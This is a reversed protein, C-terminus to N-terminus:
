KLYVPTVTAGFAAVRDSLVTVNIAMEKVPSTATVIADTTMAAGTVDFSYSSSGGLQMHYRVHTTETYLDSLYLEEADSGSSYFGVTYAQDLSSPIEFWPSTYTYWRGIDPDPIIGEDIAGGYIYVGDSIRRLSVKISNTNAEPKYFVASIRALCGPVYNTRQVVTVGAQGASAGRMFRLVRNGKYVRNPDVIIAVTAEANGWKVNEDAWDAFTDGWMGPPMTSPTTYWTLKTKDIATNFPDMRAWMADSRMAGTDRFDCVVKSFDSTTVFRSYLTGRRKAIDSPVVKSEAVWVSGGDVNSVTYRVAVASVGSGPVTYTGKLETFTVGDTNKYVDTLSTITAPVGATTSPVATLAASGTAVGASNYTVLDLTIKGARRVVVDDFYYTDGSTVASTIQVFPAISVTNTPATLYGSIKTWVGKRSADATISTVVNTLFGGGSNFGTLGIQIANAGGTTQTNGGVGSKGYVYGEVYWVDGAVSPIFTTTTTADPAIYSYRATGNSVLRLSRTGTRAQETSYTGGNNGVLLTTDEFSPNTAVNTLNANIYKTFGSVVLVDGATVDITDRAVITAAAGAAPTLKAAQIRNGTYGDQSNDWTWAGTKTWADLDLAFDIDANAYLMPQATVGAYGGGTASLTQINSSFAWQTKDYLDFHFSVPDENDVYATSYAAVERIGAFYGIAADRNAVLKRYIHTETTEFRVRRTTSTSSATTTSTNYGLVTQTLGTLGNMVAAPMTLNGGPFLWKDTGQTPLIANNVRSPPLAVPRRTPSAVSTTTTSPSFASEIAKILPPPIIKEVVQQVDTGL